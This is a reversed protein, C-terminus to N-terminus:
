LTGQKGVREAQAERSCGPNQAQLGDQKINVYDTDFKTCKVSLHYLVVMHKWVIEKNDESMLEYETKFRNIIKTSVPDDFEKGMFFTM